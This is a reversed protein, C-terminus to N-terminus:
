FNYVSQLFDRDHNSIKTPTGGGKRFYYTSWELGGAGDDALTSFVIMEYRELVAHIMVMQYDDPTADIMDRMWAFFPHQEVMPLKQPESGKYYAVEEIEGEDLVYFRIAKKLAASGRVEWVIQDYWAVVGVDGSPTVDIPDGVLAHIGDRAALDVLLEARTM